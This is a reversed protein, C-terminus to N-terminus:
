YQNWKLESHPDIRYHDMAFSHPHKITTRSKTAVEAFLYPYFYVHDNTVHPCGTTLLAEKVTRVM